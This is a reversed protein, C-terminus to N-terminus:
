ILVWLVKDIPQCKLCALVVPRWLGWWGLQGTTLEVFAQYLISSASSKFSFLVSHHPCCCFSISCSHLPPLLYSAFGSPALHEKVLAVWSSFFSCEKFYNWALQQSWVHNFGCMLSTTSGSSSLSRKPSLHRFSLLEWFSREKQIFSGRHLPKQSFIKRKM